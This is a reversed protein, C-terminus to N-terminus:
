WQAGTTRLISIRQFFTARSSLIEVM